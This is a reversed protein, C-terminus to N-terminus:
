AYARDTQQPTNASAQAAAHTAGEGFTRSGAGATGGAVEIEAVPEDAGEGVAGVLAIGTAEAGSALVGAGGGEASGAGGQTSPSIRIPIQTQSLPFPASVV